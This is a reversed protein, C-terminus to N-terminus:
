SEDGELELVDTGSQEDGELLLKDTGGQEDGELLLKNPIIPPPPAVVFRLPDYNISVAGGVVSYIRIELTDSEHGSPLAVNHTEGSIGTATFIAPGGDTINFVYINFTMGAVSGTPDNALHVVGASKSRSRWTVTITSGDGQPAVIRNGGVRTFDPPDPKYYAGKLTLLRTAALDPDLTLTGSSVVFKIGLPSDAVERFAQDAMLGLAEALFFVRDGILHSLQRTNLLARHVNTLTVVGGGNNTFTEFAMIEGGVYILNLGTAIGATNTNLLLDTIRSETLGSVQFSPIVMTDFNDFEEIGQLLVGNLPFPVELTVVVNNARVTVSTSSNNAPVPLSLVFSPDAPIGEDDVGALEVLAQPADYLAYENVDVPPTVLTYTVPDSITFANNVNDFTDRLCNIVIKPDDDSGEDFEQVRMVMGNIRYDEWTWKFVDGPTLVFAKRNAVFRTHTVIRSLQNLERGVIDQALQSVKVFPLSISTSKLNGNMTAIALDQAIVTTDKFNNTPDKFTGKVESILESWLTQSFSEIETISSEDFEVLQAPNYDARLLKPYLKNTLPDVTIIGDLQKMMQKMVENGDTINQIVGGFGQLETTCVNAVDKFRDIDLKDASISLGGWNNVCLEYLGEGANITIDSVVSNPLALTNTMRSVVFSMKRLQPNEGIYVDPFVIYSIGRYAPVGIDGAEDLTNLFPDATQTFSGPYFKAAGSFGGGKKHGGFLDSSSITINDNPGGVDGTWVEEDDIWIAKLRCGPGLCLGMAFTLYYKHAVVVTTSKKILGFLAKVTHKETIPVNRFGGAILTNPSELRSQGIVYPIGTNESAQPFGNEDFESAKLNEGKPAPILFSFIIASAIFLGIWFWM